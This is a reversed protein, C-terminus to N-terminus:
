IVQVPSPACCVKWLLFLKVFYNTNEPLESVSVKCVQISVHNRVGGPKIVSDGQDRPLFEKYDQHLSDYLHSVCVCVSFYSKFSLNPVAWHLASAETYLIFESHQLNM